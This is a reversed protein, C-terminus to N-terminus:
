SRQCKKKILTTSLYPLRKVYVIETLNKGTFEKGEYDSGIYRVEANTNYILHALQRESRYKRVEKVGKINRVIEMRDQIPIISTKEPQDDVAVILYDCDKKAERLLHLHGAHFLDFVGAVIAKRM